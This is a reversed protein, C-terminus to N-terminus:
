VLKPSFLLKEQISIALAHLSYQYCINVHFFYKKALSQNNKGKKYWGLLKTNSRFKVKVREANSEDMNQLCECREFGPTKKSCNKLEATQNEVFFNNCQMSSFSRPCLLGAILNEAATKCRIVEDMIRSSSETLPTGCGEITAQCSTM